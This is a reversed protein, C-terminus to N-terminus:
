THYKDFGHELLNLLTRKLLVVGSEYAINENEFYSNIKKMKYPETDYVEGDDIRETVQHLTANQEFEEASIARYISAIGGFDPINACHINLVKDVKEIVNSNVILGARFLVLITEKDLLPLLDANSKISDYNAKRHVDTRIINAITMRLVAPVPLSGKKILKLARSFSTSRDLFISVSAISSIENIAKRGIKDDGIVVLIKM